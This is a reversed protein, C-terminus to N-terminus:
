VEYFTQVNEFWNLWEMHSIFLANLLDQTLSQQSSLNVQLSSIVNNSPTSCSHKYDTHDHCKFSKATTQDGPDETVRNQQIFLGDERSWAGKISSIAQLHVITTYVIYTQM